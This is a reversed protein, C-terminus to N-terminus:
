GSSKGVVKWSGHIHELLLNINKMGIQQGNEKDYKVCAIGITRHKNKYHKNMVETTAKGNEYLLSYTPAECQQIFSKLDVWDIPDRILRYISSRSLLTWDSESVIHVSKREDNIAEEVLEDVVKVPATYLSKIYIYRATLSLLVVLSCVALIIGIRKLM